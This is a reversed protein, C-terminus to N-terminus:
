SWQACIVKMNQFNKLKINQRQLPYKKLSKMPLTELVPDGKDREWKAVASRSINLKEALKEQSLGTRNREEKLKEGLTM